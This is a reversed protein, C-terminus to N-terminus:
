CASPYGSLRVVVEYYAAACVFTTPWVLVFPLRLGAPMRLRSAVAQAALTTGVVGALLVPAYFFLIALLNAGANVGIDCRTLYDMYVVLAVGPLTIAILWEVM